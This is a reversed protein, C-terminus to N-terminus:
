SRKVGDKTLVVTQFGKKTIMSGVDPLNQYRPQGDPNCVVTGDFITNKKIEQVLEDLQEPTIPQGILLPEHELFGERMSQASSIDGHLEMEAIRFVASLSIADLGYIRGKGTSFVQWIEKFTTNM